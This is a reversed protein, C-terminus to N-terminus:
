GGFRPRQKVTTTDEPLMLKSDAREMEIFFFSVRLKRTEASNLRFNISAAM